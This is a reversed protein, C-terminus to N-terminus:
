RARVEFQIHRVFCPWGRSISKSLNVGHPGTVPLFCWGGGKYGYKAGIVGEM